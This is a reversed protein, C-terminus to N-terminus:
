RSPTRSALYAQFAPKYLDTVKIVPAPAGQVPEPLYICLNRDVSKIADLAVIHSRSVRMFRESPLTDAAARMTMHTTLPRPMGAFFFRVYDKLGEVYLLDDLNVSRFEGDVRLFIHNSEPVSPQNDAEVTDHLALRDRAREAARLFKDYRIPKLLYDVTNVEYSDFAYEKFATTFIVHTEPPLVRSLELGDMDPMQIDLFLLDVSNSRLADLAEVSDTFSAVPELFPTRAIFNEILRVALPEDDVVACRIKGNM